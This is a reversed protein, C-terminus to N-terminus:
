PCGRSEAMTDGPAPLLVKVAMLFWAKGSQALYPEVPRHVYSLDIATLWARGLSRSSCGDPYICLCTAGSVAMCVHEGVYTAGLLLVPLVKRM